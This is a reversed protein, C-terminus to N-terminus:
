RLTRKVTCRSLGALKMLDMDFGFSRCSNKLRVAGMGYGAGLITTKGVFRQDKTVDEERNVGYISMAMKKYVDDGVRFAETLDDQGALWALVRAEIQSSDCDILCYGDPAIM